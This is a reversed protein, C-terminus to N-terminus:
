YLTVNVGKVSEKLTFSAKKFSLREFKGNASTGIPEKADLKNNSNKDYFVAVAYEGYPTKGFTSTEQGLFDGRSKVSRHAKDMEAPFGEESDFVMIILQGRKSFDFGSVTISIDGHDQNNSSKAFAVFFLFYVTLYKLSIMKFRKKKSVVTFM